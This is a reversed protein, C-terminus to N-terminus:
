RFRLIIGVNAQGQQAYGSGTIVEPGFSRDYFVGSGTTARFPSWRAEARIGFHRSFFYKAGVGLNYSFRVGFPLEGHANFNTVGVGGALFPQFKADTERLSVNLGLEYVDIDASSLHVTADDQIIHQEISTPQHNFEFEAQICPWLTYDAIVGYNWSSKIPLYDVSSTNVDIVGGFRAGGFPTIEFEHQARASPAAIAMFFLLSLLVRKM